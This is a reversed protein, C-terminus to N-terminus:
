SWERRPWPAALAARAELVLDRLPVACARDFVPSAGDCLLLSVQALVRVPPDEVARLDRALAVLPGAAGTVREAIVPAVASPHVPRRAATDVVTLLGRCLAQRAGAAALQRARLALEASTAPAVGDALRRDLELSSAWVRLRTLGLRPGRTRGARAPTPVRPAAPPSPALPGRPVIV